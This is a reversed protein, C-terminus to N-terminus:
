EPVIAKPCDQLRVREAAGAAPQVDLGDLVFDKVNEAVVAHRLDPRETRLSVDRIKLGEVHRCYFGYAPLIGFMRGTPYANEHNAVNAAAEERTGGGEFAIQINSLQVNEIPHGPIGTISCGIKSAGTAVINSIVVNRFAGVGPKPLDKGIPRGRNGLRLFIPCSMGDIIINSVTVNELTGGDVSELAVGDLGRNAGTLRRDIGDKKAATPPFISCNSIAVNRFGGNAETGLKIASCYSSLVCNTIAVNECPRDATSKLCISDDDSDIICDSVVVDRCSDIDIGDNNGNVHNNVTIGRIRLRQCALYHEMWMGSDRLTVGELLIDRCEIMRIGFPRDTRKLGLFKAGNGDITGRGCIAVHEVNAGYILSRFTYQETFSRVKSVRKPYDALNGSGLLRSGAELKLTVHSRLELTGSLWTGPPFYVTGGGGASCRDIAKQIADTCLTKGDPLAGQDRIDYIQEVACALSPTFSSALVILMIRSLKKM